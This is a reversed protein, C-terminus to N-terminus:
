QCYRSHIKDLLFGGLGVLSGGLQLAVGAGTGVGTFDLGTGVVVLGGATLNVTTTADHMEQCFDPPLRPRTPKPPADCKQPPRRPKGPKPWFPWRPHWITGTPDTFNTPSDGVYAYLNTDGGNFEIPDESIFRPFQPNYYRARYFYLGTGDNERGTYQYPNSATGAITTNGFPEYTYTTQFAGTSDTLGMTSGLADTLFYRASAADTRAFV